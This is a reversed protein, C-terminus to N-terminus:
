LITAMLWPTMNPKQTKLAQHFIDWPMEEMRCMMCFVLMYNMVKCCIGIIHIYSHGLFITRLLKKCNKLHFISDIVIEFHNCFLKLYSNKFIM